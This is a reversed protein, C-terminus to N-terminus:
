GRIFVAGRRVAAVGTDYGDSLRIRATSGAVTRALDIRFAVTAGSSLRGNGYVSGARTAANCVVSVLGTSVFRLPHAPGRDVFTEGGAPTGLAIGALRARDGAATRIRVAEAVLCRPETAPIVAADVVAARGTIPTQQADLTASPACSAAHAPQQMAAESDAGNGGHDVFEFTGSQIFNGNIAADVGM